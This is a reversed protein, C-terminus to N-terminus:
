PHKYKFRLRKNYEDPNKNNLSKKEIFIETKILVFCGFIRKIEFVYFKLMKIKYRLNSTSIINM